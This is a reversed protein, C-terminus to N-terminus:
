VWGFRKSSNVLHLPIAGCKNKLSKLYETETPILKELEDTWDSLRVWRSNQFDYRKIVKCPNGVAVSFPPIDSLVFSGAGIVSGHGIRVGQLVTVSTALWCNVGIGIIDGATTGSTIYPETPRDIIHGCGLFQCNLGTFCYDKIEILPGSSLFNRKGIICNDGIIIRKVEQERHNVNLWVDESLITNSGILVNKWGVICVSPDVYSGKGVCFKRFKSKKGIGGFFIVYGPGWFKWPLLAYSKKAVKKLFSM